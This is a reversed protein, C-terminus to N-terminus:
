GTEYILRFNSLDPMNVQRTNTYEFTFIPGNAVQALLKARDALFTEVSENFVRVQRSLETPLPLTLLEKFKARIVEEVKNRTSAFVARRTGAYWDKLMADGGAGVPLLCYNLIDRASMTIVLIPLACTQVGTV